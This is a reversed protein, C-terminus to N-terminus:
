KEFSKPVPHDGKTIVEILAPRGERMAEMIAPNLDNIDTICAAFLGMEEAIKSFSIPPYSIRKKAIERDEPYFMSLNPMGQAMLRNNNLITITNIGYKAATEMENMHYYFGADGTFCFIPRDPVGCKVGLSGPFAWGLSGAARIYKQSSKMRIMISTWVASYGTDSVLVANDPLAKELEFCLREPLIEDTVEQSRIYYDELTAKRWARVEELWNTNNKEKVCEGLQEAVAKADGNLKISNPYNKGLEAADIDIQIVRTGTSPTTWDNTTQDATQTGIFIVLDAEYAVKNACHMGYFGVIGAWLDDHEDITGKGDPTTVIPIDAKKALEYIADGAESYAAGRGVVILPKKAIEIEQAAAELYEKRATPRFAPYQMFDKELVVESDVEWTELDRGTLGRVDLHVPRTKGTVAERYSQRILFGLQSKETLDANFKTVGDFMKHHDIEQYCNKYQWDPPKKGTLAIVPSNALWAEGMSAALNASGISQAMCIGPRGSVRAYGDAMYGAAMESHALIGKCGLHEAEKVVGRLIAEVFFVHTTGYGHITRGLYEAGTIHNGMKHRWM